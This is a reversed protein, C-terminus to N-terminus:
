TLVDLEYALDNTVEVLKPVRALLGGFGSSRLFQGCWALIGVPHRLFRQRIVRLSALQDAAHAQRARSYAHVANQDAITWRTTTTYFSRNTEFNNRRSLDHTLKEHM